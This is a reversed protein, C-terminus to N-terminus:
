MLDPVVLLVMTTQTKEKLVAYLCKSENLAIQYM